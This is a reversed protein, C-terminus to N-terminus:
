ASHIDHWFKEFKRDVFLAWVAFASVVVGVVATHLAVAAPVAFGRV